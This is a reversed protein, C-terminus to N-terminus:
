MSRTTISIVYIRLQKFLYIRARLSIRGTFVCPAATLNSLCQGGGGGGGGVVCVCLFFLLLRWINTEVSVDSTQGLSLM